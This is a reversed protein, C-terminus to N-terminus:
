HTSERLYYQCWFALCLLNFLRHGHDCVAKQHEVWMKEIVKKNFWQSLYSSTTMEYAMQFLEHSLWYSIPSNFGKKSRGMVHAPLRKTYSKKLIYKGNKHRIKYQVPMSAAFEVLRHDLYPARVELSHAMSARDVKVLIDDILWTKMDVYMAQDLYHCDAVDQFYRRSIDTANHSSLSQYDIHFIEKKQHENFIERWSLHASQFDLLCGHFFQKLKYDLGVKNFSTPFQGSLLHLIKRISAPLHRMFQYYRDAQYTLYGGFLEDGGDGSLSVTVSKKALACLFYTPILSTDAFPEDFAAILQPLNFSDPTIIRTQHEVNLYSATKQSLPLENYTKERFGIGYTKVLQHERMHSVLIASDIGGSLFAGLPVDASLKGKISEALRHELEKQADEFRIIKKQHFCASLSWYEKIHYVHTKLDYQLYSAPPLKYVDKFIADNTATYNFSLYHSLATMSIKKKIFPYCILGKLESAFVLGNKFHQNIGTYYLPKEGMRDRVLYLQQEKQDWIAFAFMGILRSIAAIGWASWAELLVESDSTTRFHHGLQVLERCLDQYNYIEGNFSLCYRRTHDWMPQKARDHLDVISLRNHGFCGQSTFIEIETKDPGRTAMASLMATIFGTQYYDPNQSIIGAIACM